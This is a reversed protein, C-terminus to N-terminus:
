EPLLMVRMYIYLEPRNCEFRVAAAANTAADQQKTNCMSFAGPTHFQRYFDISSPLLLSQVCPMLM